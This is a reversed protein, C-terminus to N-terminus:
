VSPPSKTVANADWIQLTKPMHIIFVLVPEKSIYHMINKKGAVERKKLFIQNANSPNLEDAPCNLIFIYWVKLPYFFFLKALKLCADVRGLSLTAVSYRDIGRSGVPQTQLQNM